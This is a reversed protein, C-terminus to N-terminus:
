PMRFLNQPERMQYMHADFFCCKSCTTKPTNFCGEGGDGPNRGGGDAIFATGEVLRGVFVDASILGAVGFYDLQLEIGFFDAVFLNQVREEIEVIGSRRIALTGIPARLIAGGDEEMGGLLLLLGLGLDLLECSRAVVKGPADDGLNLGSLREPAGLLVVLFIQLLTALGAAVDSATRKWVRSLRTAESSIRRLIKGPSATKFSLM